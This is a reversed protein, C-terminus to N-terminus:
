ERAKLVLVPRESKNIVKETVRGLKVSNSGSAGYAGIVIMSADIKDAYAMIASPPSGSVIDQKVSKCSDALEYSLNQLKEMKDAAQERRFKDVPEYGMDSKGEDVYLLTVPACFTKALKLLLPKVSEGYDSFDSAVLINGFLNSCANECSYGGEGQIVRCHQIMVPRDAMKLVADSVGGLIFRKLFGKGHGGLFILEVDQERATDVIVQSPNGVKIAGTVNLGEELLRGGLEDLKKQAEDIDAALAEASSKVEGRDEVVNLLMIENLGYSALEGACALLKETYPSFDVAFLLKNGM